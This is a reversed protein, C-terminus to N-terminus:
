TGTVRDVKVRPLQLAVEDLQFLKCGLNIMVFFFLCIDYTYAYIYIYIYTLVNTWFRDLEGTTRFIM